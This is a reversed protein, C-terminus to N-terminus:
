LCCDPSTLPVKNYCEICSGDGCDIINCPIRITESDEFTEGSPSVNVTVNVTYYDGSTVTPIPILFEAYSDPAGAVIYTGYPGIVEYSYSASGGPVGYHTTSMALMFDGADCIYGLHLNVTDVIPEFRDYPCSMAHELSGLSIYIDSDTAYAVQQGQKSSDVYLFIGDDIPTSSNLANHSVSLHRDDVRYTIGGETSMDNM